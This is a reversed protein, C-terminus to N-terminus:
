VTPGQPIICACGTHQMLSSYQEDKIVGLQAESQETQEQGHQLHVARERHLSACHLLVLPRERPLSRPVQGLVCVRQEVLVLLDSGQLLLAPLQLRAESLALYPVCYLM